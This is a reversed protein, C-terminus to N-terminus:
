AKKLPLIRKRFHDLGRKTTQRQNYGQQGMMVSARSQEYIYIKKKKQRKEKVTLTSRTQRTEDGYPYCVEVLHFQRAARADGDTTKANRKVMTKKNVEKVKKKQEANTPQRRLIRVSTCVSM